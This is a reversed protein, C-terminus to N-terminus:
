QIEAHYDNADRLMFAVKDKASDEDFADVYVTAVVVFEKPGRFIQPEEAVVLNPEDPGSMSQRTYTGPLLM